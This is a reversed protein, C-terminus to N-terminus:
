PTTVACWTAGSTSATSTNVYLRTNAAGDFRMYLSGSPASFSPGGTGPPLVFSVRHQGM